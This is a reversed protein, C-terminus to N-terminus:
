VPTKNGNKKLGIITKCKVTMEIEFIEENLNTLNDFLEFKLFGNFIGM